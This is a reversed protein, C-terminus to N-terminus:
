EAHRLTLTAAMLLTDSLKPMSGVQFQVKSTTDVGQDPLYRAFRPAYVRGLELTYLLLSNLDNAINVYACADIDVHGGRRRVLLKMCAEARGDVAACLSSGDTDIVGFDCLLSVIGPHNMNAAGELAVADGEHACKKRLFIKVADLHGRCAALYLPTWGTNLRSDIIAGADILTVIGECFGAGGAVH